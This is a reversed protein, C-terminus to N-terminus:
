TMLITGEVSKGMRRRAPQDTPPRVEVVPDGATFCYSAVAEGVWSVVPSWVSGPRDVLIRSALGNDGDGDWSASSASPVSFGAALSASGESVGADAVAGLLAESVESRRLFGPVAIGPPAEFTM